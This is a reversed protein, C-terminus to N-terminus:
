PLGRGPGGARGVEIVADSELGEFALARGGRLRALETVAELSM